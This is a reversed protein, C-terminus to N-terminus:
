ARIEHQLVCSWARPGLLRWFRCDLAFDPQVSARRGCSLALCISRLWGAAARSM